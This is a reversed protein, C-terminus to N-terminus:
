LSTNMMYLISCMIYLVLVSKCYIPTHLGASRDRRYLEFIACLTYSSSQAKSEPTHCYQYYHCIKYVIYYVFINGTTNSNM